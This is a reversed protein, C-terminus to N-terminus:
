ALRPSPQLGSALFAHYTQCCLPPVLPSSKLAAYVCALWGALASVLCRGELM